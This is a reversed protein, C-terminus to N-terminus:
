KTINKKSFISQYPLHLLIVMPFTCWRRLSIDQMSIDRRILCFTFHKLVHSCEKSCLAPTIRLAPEQLINRWHPGKPVRSWCTNNQKMEYLKEGHEVGGRCPKSARQLSRTAHNRSGSNRGRDNCVFYSVLRIPVKWLYQMLCLYVKFSTM